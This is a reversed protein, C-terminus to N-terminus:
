LTRPSRRLQGRSLAASAQYYTNLSELPKGKFWDIERQM